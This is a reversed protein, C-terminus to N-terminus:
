GKTGRRWKAKGGEKVKELIGEEMIGRGEKNKRRWGLVLRELDSVAPQQEM